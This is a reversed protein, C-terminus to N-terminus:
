QSPFLLPLAQDATYMCRGNHGCNPVIVLRHKAKYENRLFNWYAMGRALRSSGQAMAPCSEDFGFLPLTDLGGLLYTVDRAVLRSRLDEDSVSAAYGARRQMGYHWNDYTTCNARDAYERFEGTCGGKESCAGSSLRRGDLYLYSSPNAVVYRVPVGLSSEVKNAAAYRNVVQGGASHGTVVIARLNPFLDRRALRRLIEDLLDFTTGDKLDTASGGRRWDQEGGCTWSIEGAELQDACGGGSNSALRPSVVLTDALAEALLAGAMASVFYSDANRGSGHVVVLARRVNTSKVSLPFSRYVVSFRSSPGLPVREM